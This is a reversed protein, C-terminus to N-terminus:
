GRQAGVRRRQFIPIFVEGKSHVKTPSSNDRDAHTQRDMHRLVRPAPMCTQPPPPLPVRKAGSTRGLTTVSSIHGVSSLARDKRDLPAGGLTVPTKEGFDWDAPMISVTM